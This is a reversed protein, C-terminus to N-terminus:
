RTKWCMSASFLLLPSRYPVSSSGLPIILLTTVELLMRTKQNLSFSTAIQRFKLCEGSRRVMASGRASDLAAVGGSTRDLGKVGGEGGRRM